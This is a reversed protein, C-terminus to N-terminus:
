RGPDCGAAPPDHFRTTRGASSLRHSYGADARLPSGVTQPPKQCPREHGKGLPMPAYEITGPRRTSPPPIPAGGACRRREWAQALARSPLFKWRMRHPRISAANTAAKQLRRKCRHRHQFRSSSTCAASLRTSVPGVAPARTKEEEPVRPARGLAAAQGVVARVSVSRM